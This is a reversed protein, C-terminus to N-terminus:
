LTSFTFGRRFDLRAAIKEIMPNVRRSAFVREFEILLTDVDDRVVRPLRQFEGQDAEPITFSPTQRAIRAHHATLMKILHFNSPLIFCASPARARRTKQM